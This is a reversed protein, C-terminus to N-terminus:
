DESDADTKKRQSMKWDYLKKFFLDNKLFYDSLFIELTQLYNGM